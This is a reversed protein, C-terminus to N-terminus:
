FFFAGFAIEHWLFRDIDLYALSLYIISIITCSMSYQGFQPLSKFCFLCVNQGWVLEDAWSYWQHGEPEAPETDAGVSDQNLPPLLSVDASLATMFGWRLHWIVFHSSATGCLPVVISLRVKYLDISTFFTDDWIDSPWGYNLVPACLCTHMRHISHLRSPGLVPSKHFVTTLRSCHTKLLQSLYIKNFRLPLHNTELNCCAPVQTRPCLSIFILSSKQREWVSTKTFLLHPM